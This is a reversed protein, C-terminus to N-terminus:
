RELITISGDAEVTLHAQGGMNNTIYGFMTGSKPVGDIQLTYKVQGEGNFHLSHKNQGHPPPPAIQFTNGEPDTLTISQFTQDSNNVLYVSYTTKIQMALYALGAGAPFNALLLVITLIARQLYPASKRRAQRIFAVLAVFGGLIILIFGPVALLGAYLILDRHQTVWAVFIGAGVILPLLGCVQAIRLWILM